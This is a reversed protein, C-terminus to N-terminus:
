YRADKPKDGNPWDKSKGAFDPRPMQSFYDAVDLAEQDSLGGEGLPFKERFGVPMNHKVFAAATYPRSMGAGINFSRDGWLPPYVVRGAADKRGEGNSGHCVACQAAYIRRGNERDPKLSSAFEGFGSGPAKDGKKAGGKMWNFYVIMAKMDDSDNPLAKGNMSREFCGNIRDDLSIVRGDRASYSPFLASVGIYPSADAVTGENLHCSACNLDNGVHDPLLERTDEVLRM